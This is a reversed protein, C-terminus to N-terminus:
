PKVIDVVGGDWGNENCLLVWMEGCWLGWVGRIAGSVCVLYKTRLVKYRIKKLTIRLTFVFGVTNM